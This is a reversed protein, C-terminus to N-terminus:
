AIFAILGITVIQVLLAYFALQHIRFRNKAFSIFSIIFSIGLLILGPITLMETIVQILGADYNLKGLLIMIAFYFFVVVSIVLITISKKQEPTLKQTSKKREIM